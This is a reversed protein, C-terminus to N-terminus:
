RGRPNAFGVWPWSRQGRAERVETILRNVDAQKYGARRAAKSTEKWLSDFKEAFGRDKFKKFWTLLDRLTEGEEIQDLKLKTLPM